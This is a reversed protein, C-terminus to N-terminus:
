EGFGLPRPGFGFRKGHCRKEGMRGANDRLRPFVDAQRSPSHAGPDGLQRKDQAMRDGAFLARKAVFFGKALSGSAPFCATKGESFDWGTRPTGYSVGRHPKSCYGGGLHSFRPVQPECPSFGRAKTQKWPGQGSIHSSRHPLTRYQGGGAFVTCCSATGEVLGMPRM